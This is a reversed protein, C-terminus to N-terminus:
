LSAMISVRFRSDRVMTQKGLHIGIDPYHHVINDTLAAMLTPQMPQRRIKGEIDLLRANRIETERLSVYADNQGATYRSVEIAHTGAFSDEPSVIKGRVRISAPHRTIIGLPIGSKREYQLGM